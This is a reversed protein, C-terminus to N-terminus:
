GRQLVALYRRRQVVGRGAPLAPYARVGGGRVDGNYYRHEPDPPDASHRPRPLPGERGGGHM